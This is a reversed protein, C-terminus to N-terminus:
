LYYTYWQTIKLGDTWKGRSILSNLEYANLTIISLYLSVRIMNNFKKNTTFVRNQEEEQTTWIQPKATEKSKYNEKTYIIKGELSKLINLYKGLSLWREKAEPHLIGKIM